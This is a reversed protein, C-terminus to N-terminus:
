TCSSKKLVYVNETAYVIEVSSYYCHARVLSFEGNFISNLIFFHYNSSSPVNNVIFMKKIETLLQFTLNFTLVM